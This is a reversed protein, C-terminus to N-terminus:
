LRVTRIEVRKGLMHLASELSDLRSAHRLDLLRDMQPGHVALRRALEAKSVGAERMTQYLAVKLRTQASLSVSEMGPQETPVPIDRRAAMRAALAEELADAARLLADERDDGFTAVEPLDPCTVMLTGNDDPVLLVTYEEAM